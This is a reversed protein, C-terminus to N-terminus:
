APLWQLAAAPLRLPLLSGPAPLPADPPLNMSLAQGDPLSLEVAVGLRGPHLSAVTASFCWDDGGGQAADTQLAALPAIWCGQDRRWAGPASRAELRNFAGLFEAM